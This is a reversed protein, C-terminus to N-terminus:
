SVLIFQSILNIYINAPMWIFGILLNNQFVSIQRRSLLNDEESTTFYFDDAILFIINNMVTFKIYYHFQMYDLLLKSEVRLFNQEEGKCYIM